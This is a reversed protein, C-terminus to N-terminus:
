FSFKQIIKFELRHRNGDLESYNGVRIYDTWALGSGCHYQRRFSDYCPQEKIDGGVKFADNIRLTILSNSSTKVIAGLGLSLLPEAQYLKAQYGGDLSVPLLWTVPKRGWPQNATKAFTAKAKFGIRRNKYFSSTNYQRGNLGLFYGQWVNGAHRNEAQLTLLQWASSSGAQATPAALLFLFLLSFLRRM